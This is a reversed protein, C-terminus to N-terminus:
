KIKIGSFNDYEVNFKSMDLQREGCFYIGDVSIDSINEKEGLCKVKIQPKIEDSDAFVRINEFRVGRVTGLKESVERVVALPNKRRIGYQRNNVYILVPVGLKGEADYSQAECMQVIPLELDSSFEVNINEYLM